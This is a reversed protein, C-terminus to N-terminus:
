FQQSTAPQGIQRRLRNYLSLFQEKAATATSAAAGSSTLCSQFIFAVTGSNAQNLCNSIDQDDTLSTDFADVLAGSVSGALPTPAALTRASAALSTRNAVVTNIMAEAQALTIDPTGGDAATQMQGFLQNIQTFAPASQALLSQVQGSYKTLATRTSAASTQGQAYAILGTSGPLSAGAGPVQANIAAFETQANVGLSGLQSLMPSGPDSLVTVVANLWALESALAARANGAFPQDGPGPTLTGLTRQAARVVGIATQASRKAQKSGSTASLSGLAGALQNNDQVVSALTSRARTVYAAGDKSSSLVVAGVIALAALMCGFALALVGLRRNTHASERRRPPPAAAADAVSGAPAAPSARRVTPEVEPAVLPAANDTAVGCKPCYKAGRLATGCEMCYAQRDITLEDRTGADDRGHNDTGAQSEMEMTDSVGRVVDTWCNGDWWREKGTGFPDTYWAGTRGSRREDSAGDQQTAGHLEPVAVGNQEREVMVGM